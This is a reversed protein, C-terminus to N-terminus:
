CEFMIITKKGEKKRKAEVAGFIHCMFGKRKQEPNLSIVQSPPFKLRIKKRAFGDPQPNPDTIQKAIKKYITKLRKAM